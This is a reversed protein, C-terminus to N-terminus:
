RGILRRTTTASNTAEHVVAACRATREKMSRYAEMLQDMEPGTLLRTETDTIASEGTAQPGDSRKPPPAAAGM